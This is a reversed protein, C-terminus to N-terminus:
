KQAERFVSNKVSCADTRYGSPAHWSKGTVKVLTAIIGFQDINCYQCVDKLFSRPCSTGGILSLAVSTTDELAGESLNSLLVRGQSMKLHLITLSLVWLLNAQTVRRGCFKTDRGWQEIAVGDEQSYSEWIAESPDLNEWRAKTRCTPNMCGVRDMVGLKPVGEFLTAAYRQRVVPSIRDHKSFMRVFNDNRAYRRPHKALQKALYAFKTSKLAQGAATAFIEHGFERYLAFMTRVVGPTKDIKVFNRGDTPKYLPLSFVGAHSSKFCVDDRSGTDYTLLLAEMINEAVGPLRLCSWDQPGM